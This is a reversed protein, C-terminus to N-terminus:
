FGELTNFLDWSGPSVAVIAVLLLLCLILLGIAKVVEANGNRKWREWM